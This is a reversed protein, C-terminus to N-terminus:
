HNLPRSQSHDEFFHHQGTTITARAPMCVINQNHARRYNIGKNSLRNIASTKAVKAGNRWQAMAGNYGLADHRMQDTTILLINSTM